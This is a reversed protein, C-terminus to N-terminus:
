ITATAIWILKGTMFQYFLRWDDSYLYPGVALIYVAACAGGVVLWWVLHRRRNVLDLRKSDPAPTISM